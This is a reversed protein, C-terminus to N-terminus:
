KDKLYDGPNFKFKFPEPKKTQTEENFKSSTDDKGPKIKVPQTALNARGKTFVIIKNIMLGEEGPKKIYVIDAFDRLQEIANELSVRDLELTVNTDEELKNVVEIDYSEGLDEIVDVLSSDTANLSILREVRLNYSSSQEKDKVVQSKVEVLFIFLIFLTFIFITLFFKYDKILNFM